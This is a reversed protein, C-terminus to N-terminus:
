LRMCLKIFIVYIKKEYNTWIKINYCRTFEKNAKFSYHRQNQHNKKWINKIISFMSFM